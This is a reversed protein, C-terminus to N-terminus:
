QQVSSLDSDAGRGGELGDAGYSLIEFPQNERGPTLYIYPREWADRPVEVSQLYGGQPYRPALPPTTPERVLAELGQNQTPLFGQQTQFLTVANALNYIESQTSKVKADDLTPVLNLAVVSGMIAIIVLAVLVEILSFGNQHKM